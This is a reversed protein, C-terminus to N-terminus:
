DVGTNNYALARYKIKIPKGIEGAYLDYNAAWGADSVLYILEIETEITEDTEVVIYIESLPQRNANLEYLQLKHDFLTRNVKHLQDQLEFIQENVKQIRKFFFETALDLEQISLNQNNGKIIQNKKLLEKQEKHANIRSYLLNMKYKIGKVSDQLARIQETGKNRDLFNTKSTISLIDLSISTKMRITEAILKPSLGTFVIEQRGKSLKVTASRTIYAGQLHIKVQDVATEIKQQSSQAVLSSTMLLAVISLYYYPKM